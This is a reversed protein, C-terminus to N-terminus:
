RQDKFKIFAKDRLTQLKKSISDAAIATTLQQRVSEFAPPQTTRIDNLFIIHWGFQTKVPQKSYEGAKLQMTAQSFPAVMDGQKFWGLAGGDKGSPGISLSKALDTFKAGDDLQKIVDRAETDTKVLIHNANYEATQSSEVYDKQYRQKLAAETIELNRLHQQLYHAAILASENRKLELQLSENSLQNENRAAQKLLEVNIMEQLAIAPPVAKSQKSIFHKVEADTIDVGNVTALVPNDTEAWLPNHYTFLTFLLPLSRKFMPNM